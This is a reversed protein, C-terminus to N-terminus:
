AAGVVGKKIAAAKGPNITHRCHRCYSANSKILELCLPCEIYGSPAAEKTEIAKQLRACYEAFRKRYLYVAVMITVLAGVSMGFLFTVM